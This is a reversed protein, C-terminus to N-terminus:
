CSISQICEVSIYLFYRRNEANFHFKSAELFFSSRRLDKYPVDMSQQGV